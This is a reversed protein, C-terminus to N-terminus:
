RRIDVTSDPVVSCLVQTRMPALQAFLRHRRGFTDGLEAQRRRHASL